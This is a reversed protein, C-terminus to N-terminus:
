TIEWLAPFHETQSRKTGKCRFTSSAVVTAKRTLKKVWILLRPNGRTHENRNSFARGRGWLGKTHTITHTSHPPHRSCRRWNDTCHQLYLYPFRSLIQSEQPTVPHRSTKLLHTYHICVLTHLLLFHIPSLSGSIKWKIKVKHGWTAAKPLEYRVNPSVEKRALHHLARVPCPLPLPM